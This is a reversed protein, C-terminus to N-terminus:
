SAGRTQLAMYLLSAAVGPKNWAAAVVLGSEQRDGGRGHGFGRGASVSDCGGAEAVMDVGLAEPLSWERSWCGPKMSYQNELSQEM